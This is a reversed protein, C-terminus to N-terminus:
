KEDKKVLKLEYGLAYSLSVACWLSCGVSASLIDPLNKATTGSLKALKYDTMKQKSKLKGLQRQLELSKIIAQQKAEM